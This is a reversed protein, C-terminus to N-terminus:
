PILVIKGLKGGAAFREYAAEAQDLSFTELIPIRVEGESLLPLAHRRVEDAVNAKELRNRARLTSGGITARSGMLGLLDLDLRSGGGVGIVVVRAGTNLAGMVGESLSSAGILELVVDFPGCSTVDSPLVVEHAGLLAVEDHRDSNRVSAVVHAGMSRGLQVAATGVGGAAGTVLLRDGARLGGQTVIADYATSFAEAFGGAEVDSISDPV